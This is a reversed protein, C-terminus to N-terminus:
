HPEQASLDHQQALGAGNGDGGPGQLGGEPGVSRSRRRALADDHFPDPRGLDDAAAFAALVAYALVAIIAEFLYVGRMQVELSLHAIITGVPASTTGGGVLYGVLATLVSGVLGGVGLAVVTSPGRQARVFWLGIGAVLGVSVTIVVFRGDAAAFGEKEDRLLGGRLVEGAPVPPSWWAWLMGLLAGVVALVLVILAGARLSNRWEVREAGRAPRLGPLPAGAAASPNVSAVLPAPYGSQPPPYGPPPPASPGPDPSGDRYTM